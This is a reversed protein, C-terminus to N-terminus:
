GQVELENVVAKVGVTSMAANFAAERALWTDVTGSLTVTGDLVEVDVNDVDVSDNRDIARVVQRAITEDLVDETPVVTLENVVAVVGSVDSAVEEAREVKWASGVTGRLTAVSDQVQVEIESADLDPNWSLAETVQAELYRDGLGAADTGVTLENVASLVGPILRAADAAALRALYTPVTGSLTVIGDEVEVRVNAANVRDDWILQEIVDARIEEDGLPEALGSVTPLDVVINDVVERVGLTNAAAQYAADRAKWSEVSGGLTVVGASVRVDIDEVDVDVNRDIAQVVDEAIAEDLIDESPVVAIENTVALVGSVGAALEEAELKKWYADVTGELTVVGAWAAVSINDWEIQSSYALVQQVRNALALDSDTGGEYEVELRDNLAIVGDVSWADEVATRRAFHSSVIGSLTVAGGVVEVKIEAADVRNDWTLQDVIDRKVLEDSRMESGGGAYLGVALLAM